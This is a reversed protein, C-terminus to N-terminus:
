PKRAAPAGADRCAAVYVAAAAEHFGPPLGHAAFAAAIEKMEGIWRWGKAAASREAAALRGALQPQSRAWEELLAAEVGEARALDRIALLLAGSGKTWAAYACKVASASAVVETAVPSGAFLAAVEGAEAGSLYLRPAPPGGVIGGDVFREVAAGVRRATEPSVANADVFIGRFPPLSEALEIAAHPPVVSLVAECRAVLEAVTGADTLGAARARTAESRGASAWLVDHGATQLAAALAAGM